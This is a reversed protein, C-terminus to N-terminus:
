FLRHFGEGNPCSTWHTIKKNEKVNHKRKKKKEIDKYKKCDTRNSLRAFCLFKDKNNRTM